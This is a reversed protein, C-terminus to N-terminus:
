DRIVFTRKRLALTRLSMVRHLHATRPRNDDNDGNDDCVVKLFDSESHTEVPKQLIKQKKM